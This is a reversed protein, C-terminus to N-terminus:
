HCDAKANGGRKSKLIKSVSQQTCGIIKAIERQKKGSRYLSAIMEDRERKAEQCVGDMQETVEDQVSAVGLHAKPGRGICGCSKTGGRKRRLLGTRVLKENGCDCRCRWLLGRANSRGVPEIAILLGFRKNRLNLPRSGPRKTM